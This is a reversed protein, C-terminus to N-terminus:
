IDLKKLTIPDRRCRMKKRVCGVKRDRGSCINSDGLEDVNDIQECRISDSVNSAMLLM